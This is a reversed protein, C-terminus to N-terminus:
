FFSRSSLGESDPTELGNLGKFGTCLTDFECLLLEFIGIWDITFCPKITRRQIESCRRQDHIRIRTHLRLLKIFEFPDPKTARTIVNRSPFSGLYRVQTVIPSATLKTAAINCNKPHITSKRAANQGAINPASAIAYKKSILPGIPLGFYRNGKSGTRM